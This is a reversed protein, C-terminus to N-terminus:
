TGKIFRGSSPRVKFGDDSCSRALNQKFVKGTITSQGSMGNDELCLIFSPVLDLSLSLHNKSGTRELCWLLQLQEAYPFHRQQLFKTNWAFKINRRIAFVKFIVKHCADSKLNCVAIHSTVSQKALSRSDHLKQYLHVLFM